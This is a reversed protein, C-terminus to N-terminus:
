PAPPYTDPGLAIRFGISNRSTAPAASDRAASRVRDASDRWSGGRLGHGRGRQVNYPNSVAGGPHRDWYRDLVWEAVNGHVDHLGWANPAFSGVPLTGYREATARGTSEGASYIGHFNGKSPDAETGFSFPTTTGARATLEWEAETPLRYVYGEPLRGAQREFETLRRCFENAALWSVSDVPLSEGEFGSPNGGMLLQFTSQTVEHAGIWFDYDLRVTTLNDENPLRRFEEVPSGMTFRAPEIWVLSIEFYPMGYAEGRVPGSLRKLPIAWDIRANPAGEFWQIVNHHNEIIAEVRVPEHPPVLLAGDDQVAVMRDNIRFRATASGPLRPQIRVPRPEPQLTLETRAADTIVFQVDLPFYDPHELRLTHEGEPLQLDRGSVLDFPQGDVALAFAEAPPSGDPLAALGYNLWGVRPQLIGADFLRSEGKNFTITGSVPRFGDKEVLIELATGSELGEVQLPTLGVRKGAVLVVAGAPESFIRLETPRPTQVLTIRTASDALRFPESTATQFAPHRGQLVYEGSLLRDSVVLGEDSEITGLHLALEPTSQVYVDTGVAGEVTLTTFAHSLRIREHIVRSGDLVVERRETKRGPSTVELLYRGARGRLMLSGRQVLFRGNEPGRVVVLANPPDVYVILNAQGPDPVQLVKREAEPVDFDAFIIQFLLSATGVALVGVLGLLGLRLLLLGRPGVAREIGMPLPVQKIIRLLRGEERRPSGTLDELHNLDRIFSRYHPFRDAPKPELCHSIFLDWGPHIDPRVKSPLIWKREPKSGTLMFYACMGICYFDSRPDRIKLNRIEPSLIEIAM